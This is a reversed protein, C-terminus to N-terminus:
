VAQWSSTSGARWFGVHSYKVFVTHSPLWTTTNPQKSGNFLIPDRLALGSRIYKDAAPAAVFADGLPRRAERPARLGPAYRAINM